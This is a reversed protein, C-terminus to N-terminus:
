DSPVLSSTSEIWRQAQETTFSGTLNVAESSDEDLLALHAALEEAAIDGQHHADVVLAVTAFAARKVDAALASGEILSQHVAYLLKATFSPSRPIFGLLGAQMALPQSRIFHWVDRDIQANLATGRPLVADIIARTVLEGNSSNTLIVLGDRTDPNVIMLTRLGNERGDHSLIPTGDVQTIRWGLSFYEAPSDHVAQPRRLEQTLSAPLGAGRAVWAAFRSVDDITTFTSAAANPTRKKLSSTDLASGDERYGVVLDAAVEDSWGFYTHAMGAPDQVYRAMLAPMKQGTAREVARRVYEFGEGSYEHRAGPEFAFSLPNGGRWNPLGTQHSLALRATLQEHRPDEAVDPDVWHTALPTDLGFQDSAALHLVMTAFMPKTLSAVNFVTQGTVPRGEGALGYHHIWAVRGNRIAAVAMGPVDFRKAEAAIIKATAGPAAATGAANAGSALCLSVALAGAAARWMMHKM